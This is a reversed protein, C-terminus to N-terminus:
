PNQSDELPGLPCGLEKHTAENVQREVERVFPKEFSRTMRAQEVRGLRINNAVAFDILAEASATGVVPLADCLQADFKRQQINLDQNRDIHDDRHTVYQQVSWSTGGVALITLFVITLVIPSKLIGWFSSDPRGSDGRDPDGHLGGAGGGGVEEGLGAEEGPDRGM